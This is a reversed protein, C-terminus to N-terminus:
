PLKEEFNVFYKQYATKFISIFNFGRRLFQGIQWLCCPKMFLYDFRKPRFQNLM